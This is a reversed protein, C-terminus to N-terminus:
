VGRRYRSDLSCLSFLRHSRGKCANSPIVPGSHSSSASRVQPRHRLTGEKDYGNEASSATEYGHNLKAFGVGSHQNALGAATRLDLPRTLPAHQGLGYIKVEGLLIKGFADATYLTIWAAEIAKSKMLDMDFSVVLEASVRDDEIRVITTELPSM